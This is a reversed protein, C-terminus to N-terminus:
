LKKLIFQNNIISVLEVTNQSLIEEVARKPGGNPCRKYNYDDGVIYGGQKTKPFFLALDQQVFEYDHNADIYVFDFYDGAFSPAIEESTGRHLTVNDLQGYQDNVSQYIKDMRAQSNQGKDGTGYVRDSYEAFFKWPDVLHLMKPQRDLIKKSFKGRWVGVEVCTFDPTILDLVHDRSHRRKLRQQITQLPKLLQNM